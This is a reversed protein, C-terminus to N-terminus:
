CTFQLDNVLPLVTAVSVKRVSSGLAFSYGQGNYRRWLHYGDYLMAM